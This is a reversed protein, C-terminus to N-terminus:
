KRTLIAVVPILLFALWSVAWLDAFYGLLYFIAVAVFPSIAVLRNERPSHRLIAVIPILFFILWLYPWSTFLIGCVIYVAVAGIAVLRETWNEGVAAFKVDSLLLGAAFPILFAFLGYVWAGYGYGLFLYLGIALLFTLEYVILKWLPKINLIGIVPVLFFVLWGPHWLGYIGLIFFTTVAVFPSLATLTEIVKRTRATVCIAVVPILFFILWTPHWIGSEFGVLLYIIVSVFPMLGIVINLDRKQFLDVTIAVIPILLFVLWGPHWLGALTGMLIYAIVAVFPSLAVLKNGIKPKEVKRYNEALGSVVTEPMGLFDVVDQDTMGKALGDEYMGDYDSLIDDQESKSIQYNGLLDRIAQLYEAKM